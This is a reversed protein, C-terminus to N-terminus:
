NSISNFINYQNPDPITFFILMSATTLIFCFKIMKFQANRDEDCFYIEIQRKFNDGSFQIQIKNFENLFWGIMKSLKIIFSLMILFSSFKYIFFLEPSNIIKEM